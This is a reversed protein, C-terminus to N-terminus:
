RDGFVHAAARVHQIRLLETNILNAPFKSHKHFWDHLSEMPIHDPIIVSMLCHLYREGDTDAHQSADHVTIWIIEPGPKLFNTAQMKRRKESMAEQAVEIVTRFREDEGLNLSDWMKEIDNPVKGRGWVGFAYSVSGGAVRSSYEQKFAQGDLAFEIYCPEIM